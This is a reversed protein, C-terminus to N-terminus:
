GILTIIRQMTIPPGFLYKLNVLEKYVIVHFICFSHSRDLEACTLMYTEYKM